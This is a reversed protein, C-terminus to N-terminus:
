VLEKEQKLTKAIDLRIKADVLLLTEEPTRDSKGELRNTISSLVNILEDLPKSM